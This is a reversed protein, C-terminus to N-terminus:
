LRKALAMPRGSLATGPLLAPEAQLARDHRKALAMSVGSLPQPQTLTAPQQSTEVRKAARMSVGSLQPNSPASAATAHSVLLLTLSLLTLSSKM